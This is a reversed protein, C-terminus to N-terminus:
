AATADILARLSQPAVQTYIATTEPKMHGLLEQVARLDKSSQYAVTACRHRLSHCTWDGPLVDAVLKGVHAPTLPAGAIRPSPFLHGPPRDLIDVAMGPPLPVFREHGGKGRVMLSRQGLVDETLDERRVRSIEGRRLGCIGALQVMLSVDGGGGARIADQMAAEPTPHPVARPVSVQPLDLGPNDLRYGKGQAWKYFSRLSARYTRRTNPKWTQQGLWDLLDDASAEMLGPLNARAMQKEVRRVNWVRLKITDRSLGNATMWRVWGLLEGVDMKPSNRDEVSFPLPNALNTLNIQRPQSADDM